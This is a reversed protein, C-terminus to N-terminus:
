DSSVTFECRQASRDYRFSFFGNEDAVDAGSRSPHLGPIEDQYRPYTLIKNWDDSGLDFKFVWQTAGLAGCKYDLTINKVSAPVPGGIYDALKNKAWREHPYLTSVFYLCFLSILASPAIVLSTRWWARRGGSMLLLGLVGQAPLLFIVAMVSLLAGSALGSIVDEWQLAESLAALTAAVSISAVNLLKSGIRFFAPIDHPKDLAETPSIYGHM